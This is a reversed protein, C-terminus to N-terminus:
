DVNLCPEIQKFIVEKEESSLKVKLQYQLPDGKKTHLVRDVCRFKKCLYVSRGDIRGFEDFFVQQEKDRVIKFFQKKPGKSRCAICTREPIHSM